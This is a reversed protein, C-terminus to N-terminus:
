RVVVIWMFRLFLVDLICSIVGNKSSFNVFKRLFPVTEGWVGGEEGGVAGRNERRRCEIQSGGGINWHRQRGHM